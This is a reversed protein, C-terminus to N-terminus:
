LWFLKQKNCPRTKTITQLVLWKAKLNGGGGGGGWFFDSVISDMNVIVAILYLINCSSLCTSLAGVLM